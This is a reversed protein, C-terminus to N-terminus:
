TSLEVFRGVGLRHSRPTHQNVLVPWECFRVGVAAPQQEEQASALDDVVGSQSALPTSGLCEHM